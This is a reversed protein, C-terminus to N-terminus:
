AELLARAKRVYVHLERDLDAKLKPNKACEVYFSKRRDTKQIRINHKKYQKEIAVIFQRALDALRYQKSDIPLEYRNALLAFVASFAYPLEEILRYVQRERVEFPIGELRRGGVPQFPFYIEKIHYIERNYREKLRESTSYVIAFAGMITEIDM